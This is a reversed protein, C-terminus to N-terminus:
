AALVRAAASRLIDMHGMSRHDIWWKASTQESAVAGIAALLADRRAPPTADWKAIDAPCSVLKVLAAQITRRRLDTAWAVQKDSGTLTPLDVTLSIQKTSYSGTQITDTM